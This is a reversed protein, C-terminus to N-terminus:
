QFFFFFFFTQKSLSFLFSSDNSLSLFFFYKLLSFFIKKSLNFFLSLSHFFFNFSLFFFFFFTKLSFFLSFFHQNKHSLACTWFPCKQNYWILQNLLLSQQLHHESIHHTIYSSWTKKSPMVGVTKSVISTFRFFLCTWQIYINHHAFFLFFFFPFSFFFFYCWVSTSGNKMASPSTVWNKKKCKYDAFSFCGVVNGIGYLRYKFM